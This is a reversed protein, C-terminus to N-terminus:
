DAAAMAEGAIRGTTWAAQLNFGGTIGDIDLLEGALYLGPCVRSQMTRFDVETLRVGGCTVFEDKNLSRGTVQLRSQKLRSVLADAQAARLNGWRADAPVEAHHLLNRWLRIPLQLLAHAALHTAGRDRRHEAIITRIEEVSRASAWDIDLPFTYRLDHMRRAGWASLRLIAPGSLGWHTILLAGEQRLTVAGVGAPEVSIGSLGDIRPDSIHFTFLSPVPPEITHGLGGAIRYGSSAANGGTALLLRDAHINVGNSCTLAFGADTREATRLGTQPLISVGRRQAEELLCGTISTARDNAPFIRGDSETKLPVGRAEFWDITDRAQWRHLPGRLERAGRPYREAFRDPEFEAHTVNCRGGGSIAVKALLEPSKDLLVITRGPRQEAATVAAFFGAAGGGVIAIDCQHRNM